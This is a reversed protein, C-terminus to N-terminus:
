GSGCSVTDGQIPSAEYFALVPKGTEKQPLTTGPRGGTGNAPDSSAVLHVQFSTICSKGASTKAYSCLYRLQEM